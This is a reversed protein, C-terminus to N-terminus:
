FIYVRVNQLEVTYYGTELFVFSASTHIEHARDNEQNNKVRCTFWIVLCM